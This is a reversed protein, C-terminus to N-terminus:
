FKPCVITENDYEGLYAISIEFAGQGRKTNSFDELNADYSFGILFNQYEIGTMVVVADTHLPNIDDAALRLWGGVHLATGNIDNVLFRFNSGANMSQHAGQSYYLARPLVQVTEGVPIVLGVHGTYKRKLNDNPYKGPDSEDYFFSVAPELVHSLAAGIFFGVGNDPSFSYNLGVNYDGFAFNNEPLDERTPDSYGNTGNFQDNFSLQSYNTNWQSLGVQAGVTLFQNNESNLSKHFAGSLYVQNISFYDSPRDNYFVVGFGVADKIRKTPSFSFRFDAAASFTALPNPLISRWQDRYIMSLRFKGEFAGTLAPNLTTPSAYFQTFHQDQATSSAIITILSLAVLVIKKM